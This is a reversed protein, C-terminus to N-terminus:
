MLHPPATELVSDVTYDSVTVQSASPTHWRHVNSVQVIRIMAYTFKVAKKTNHQCTTDYAVGDLETSCCLSAGWGMSEFEHNQVIAM